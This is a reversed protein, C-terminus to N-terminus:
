GRLATAALGPIKLPGPKAELAVLKRGMEAQVRNSPFWVPKPLVEIPGRLVTKEIGELLYTNHVWGRGSQIDALTSSPHGGWAPSTVAYGIAPWHNIGVTGYRLERVAQDLASGVEQSRELKPPVVLMANLTGWLTDNMFATAAALFEGPESPALATVSLLGCFPETSFAPDSSHSPDVDHIITWALKIDSDDGITELRPRGETLRAYRERAGPYYAVRTPVTALAKTVERLFAERQSWGASLVLMKAANCNFSANNTVMAALNMAMAALQRDTYNGPVVAVPSVNGLESTIRKKLVPTNQRKREEQEPGPPGWVIRDHTHNSGTIHIDTVHDSDVLYQGVDAGGYVFRLYGAEVLPSFARELHPGAWENVPNMKVMTVFGEAFLKYLADMPPISSVNGAGLVLSVGEPSSQHYIRGASELVSQETAGSEMVQDVKLWAYLAADTPGTPFVNVRVRGTPDTRVRHAPVGPGDRDLRTLTDMLLRINRLTPYPGVLWEEGADEALGKAKHGSSVWAEAEEAVRRSCAKLLAVKESIGLQAFPGASDALQQLAEDLAGVETGRESQAAGSMTDPAATM